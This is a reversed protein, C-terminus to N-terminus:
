SGSPGPRRSSRRCRRRRLRLHGAAVGGRERHRVRRPLVAQRARVAPGDGGVASWTPTPSSGCAAWRCSGATRSRRRSRRTSRPGTSRSGPSSSPRRCPSSSSRTTTWSTSWTRRRYPGGQAGDRAAAVAVGLRHARARRRQHPARLRAAPASLVGSSRPAPARRRQRRHGAPGRRRPRREIARLLEWRRPRGGAAAGRMLEVSCRWTRSWSGCRPRSSPSIWGARAPLAPRDGATQKDGSYTPLRPTDVIVPNSAAEVYLECPRGAARRSRRHAGVRQAPQAGEGAQRGAPLGAGRVPLRAHEARLRPGAGGGRHPGGVGGARARHGPVLHHGM